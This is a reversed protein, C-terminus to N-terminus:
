QEDAIHAARVEAAAVSRIMEITEVPQEPKRIPDRNEGTMEFRLRYGPDDPVHAVEKCRRIRM